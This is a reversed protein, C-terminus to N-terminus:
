SVRVMTEDIPYTTKDPFICTSLCSVVRVVNVEHAAQLVNDNIYINNRQLAFVNWSDCCLCMQFCYVLLPVVEVCGSTWTASWTKSFGALWPLWTSSTPRGINRLFQGHRRWKGASLDCVCVAHFCDKFWTPKYMILVKDIWLPAPPEWMLDADKSSLFIWEEGEKAGGEEKVVHQIAKGVLGSGGTVLVRMPTTHNDQCNMQLSGCM